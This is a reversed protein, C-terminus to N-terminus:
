LHYNDGIILVLGFALLKDGEKIEYLRRSSFQYFLGHTLQEASQGEPVEEKLVDDWMMNVCDQIDYYDAPRISIQITTKPSIAM